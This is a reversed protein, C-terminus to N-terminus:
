KYFSAGRINGHAPLSKVQPEEQYDTMRNELVQKLFRYSYQGHDLAIGCAKSFIERNTKRSLNLIGDCTKYLQEPYKDQKFLAEMYRYLEESHNYGRQLYYTPSREKYYQHHSCLHEKRTTYGGKKHNRPHTAILGAKHYIRVLSRTYI